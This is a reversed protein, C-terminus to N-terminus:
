DYKVGDESPKIYLQKGKKSVVGMVSGPKTDQCIAGHYKEKAGKDDLYYVVDKDGEKVKIANTCKKALKLGCKACTLEGKLTVVKGKEKKKEEATAVLGVTLILAVGLLTKFAAKM